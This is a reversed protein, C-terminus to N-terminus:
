GKRSHLAGLLCFLFVFLTLAGLLIAPILFVLTNWFNGLFGFTTFVGTVALFIFLTIGARKASGVEAYQKVLVDTLMRGIFWFLAALVLSIGVGALIQNSHLGSSPEFTIETHGGPAPQTQNGEAAPAPQPSNGKSPTPPITIDNDM